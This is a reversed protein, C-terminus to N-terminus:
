AVTISITGLQIIQGYPLSITTTPSDFEIWRVGTVRSAVVNLDGFDLPEGIGFIMSDFYATLAITLANIVTTANHGTM